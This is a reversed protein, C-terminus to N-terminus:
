CVHPQRTNTVHYVEPTFCAANYSPEVEDVQFFSGRLIRCRWKWIEEITSRNDCAWSSDRWQVTGIRGATGDFCM